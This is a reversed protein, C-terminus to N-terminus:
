PHPLYHIEYHNQLSSSYIQFKLSILNEYKWAKTQGDFFQKIFVGVGKCKEHTVQMLIKWYNTGDKCYYKQM